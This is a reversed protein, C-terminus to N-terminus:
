LVAVCTVHGEVAVALLDFVVVNVQHCLWGVLPLQVIRFLGVDAVTPTQGVGNVMICLIHLMLELSDLLDLSLEVM